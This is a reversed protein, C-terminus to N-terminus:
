LFVIKNNRNFTTVFALINNDTKAKSTWLSENPISIVKQIAEQILNQQFEQSYLVERLQNLHKKRIKSHQFSM